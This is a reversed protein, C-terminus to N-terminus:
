DQPLPLISLSLVELKDHYVEIEKTPLRATYRVRERRRPSRVNPLKRITLLIKRDPKIEKGIVSGMSRKNKPRGKSKKLRVIDGPKLHLAREYALDQWKM